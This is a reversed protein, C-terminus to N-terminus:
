SASTWEMELLRDSMARAKGADVSGAALQIVDLTEPLTIAQNDLSLWFELLDPGAGEIRAARVAHRDHRPRDSDQKLRATDLPASGTTALVRATDSLREWLTDAGVDAPTIRVHIVHGATMAVTAAITRARLGPLIARLDEAHHSPAPSLVAGNTVGKGAKDTDTSCRLVTADLAAVSAPGVGAVIRALATTNCSLLRVGAAHGAQEPNVASHVLPGLLPDREGGCFIPRIDAAQYERARGAGTRSPGCDVVLDAAAYLEGALGRPEIGAARLRQAAQADAAYFPLEPRAFAFANPNRIVVGGLRLDTEEGRAATALAAALRKGIIGAGLVAVTTV